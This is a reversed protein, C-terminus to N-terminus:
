KSWGSVSLDVSGDTKDTMVNGKFSEDSLIEDIFAKQTKIADEVAVGEKVAEYVKARAAKPLAAESVAESVAAIDIEDKDADEKVPPNVAEQVASIGDLVPKLASALAEALEEPKMGEDERKDDDSGMIDRKEIFSEFAEKIKVRGDAGPVTVLDVTNLVSPIFGDIIIQGGETYNEETAYYAAHISLGCYQGIQEVFPAWEDLYETFAYLGNKDATYTEGDVSISEGAVMFKPESAIVGIVRRVSGAPYEDEDRWSQHDANIKTGVPFAAPGTTSLAEDTYYASSGAGSAILRSFWRKKGTVAVLATSAAEDLYTKNKVHTM